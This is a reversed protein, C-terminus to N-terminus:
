SKIVADRVQLTIDYFGEKETRLKYEFMKM